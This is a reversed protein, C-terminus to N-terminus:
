SGDIRGFKQEGWQSFRLVPYCYIFYVVAILCYVFLVNGPLRLIAIEGQRTLEAIGIVSLLSTSKIIVVYVGAMPPIMLRTAQPLVVYFLAQSKSMGAARAAEEQGPPVARIAAATIETVYSSTYLSLAVTAAVFSDFQLFAIDLSPLVFYIIYLQVLFPTGRFIHLYLGILARPARYPLTRAVGLGFGLSSGFAIALMSVAFTLWLGYMLIPWLNVTIAWKEAISDLM